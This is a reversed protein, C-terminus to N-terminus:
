WVVLCVMVPNRCRRAWRALPEARVTRVADPMRNAGSGSPGPVGICSSAGAGSDRVGNSGALEVVAVGGPALGPPKGSGTNAGASARRWLAASVGRRPWVAEVADAGAGSCADASSVAAAGEGARVVCVFVGIGGGPVGSVAFSVRATRLAFGAVLVGALVWWGTAASWDM